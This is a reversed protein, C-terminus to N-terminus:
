DEEVGLYPEERLDCDRVENEGDMILANAVMETVGTVECNPNWYQVLSLLTARDIACVCALMNVDHKEEVYRLASARPLAGRMRVDMIEETNLGSGGGCCYTQEKITNEPMEFFNNCVNRIVYRPEEILGMARAPNCSDHFTV